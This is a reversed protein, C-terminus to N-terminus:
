NSSIKATRFILFSKMDSTEAMSRIADRYSFNKDCDSDGNSNLYPSPSKRVVEFKTLQVNQCSINQCIYM